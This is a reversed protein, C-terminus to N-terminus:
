KIDTNGLCDKLFKVTAQPLDYEFISAFIGEEMGHAGKCHSQEEM